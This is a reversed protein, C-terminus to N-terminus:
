KRQVTIAYTWDYDISAPKGFGDQDLHVSQTFAYTQPEASLLRSLPATQVTKERPPHALITANCSSDRADANGPANVMWNLKAEGSAPDPVQIEFGITTPGPLLTTGYDVACPVLHQPYSFDMKCGAFREALNFTAKAYIGGHMTSTGELVNGGLTHTGDIDQTVGNSDGSLAMTGSTGGFDACTGGTSSYRTRVKYSAALVRYRIPLTQAKLDADVEGIGGTSYFLIRLREPDGDPWAQAPPTVTFTAAVDADPEVLAYPDVTLGASKYPAFRAYSRLNQPPDGRKSTASVHVKVSQGPILREPVDGHGEVCRNPTRWQQEAHKFVDWTKSAVALMFTQAAAQFASGKLLRDDVVDDAPDDHNANAYQKVLRDFGPDPSHMGLPVLSVLEYRLELPKERYSKGTRLDRARRVRRIRAWADPKPQISRLEANGNVAGWYERSGITDITFDTTLRLHGSRQTTVIHEAALLMGSDTGVNNTATAAIPCEAATATFRISRTQSSGRPGRIRDGYSIEDVGAGLGPAATAQVKVRGVSGVTQFRQGGGARSARATDPPDALRTDALAQARTGARGFLRRLSPIALGRRVRKSGLTRQYGGIAASLAPPTDPEGARAAAPAALALLVVIILGIRPNM